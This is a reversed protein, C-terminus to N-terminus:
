PNTCRLIMFGLFAWWGAVRQYYYFNSKFVKSYNKMERVKIKLFNELGFDTNNITNHM